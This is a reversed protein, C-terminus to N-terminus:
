KRLFEQVKIEEVFYNLLFRLCLKTFSLCSFIKCILAADLRKKPMGNEQLQPNSLKTMSLFWWHIQPLINTDRPFIKTKLYEYVINLKTKVHFIYPFFTVRFKKPANKQAGMGNLSYWFVDPHLVTLQLVVAMKSCAWGFIM